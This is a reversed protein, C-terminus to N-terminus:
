RGSAKRADPDAKANEQVVTPATATGEFMPSSVPTRERLKKLYAAVQDSFREQFLREAIQKQIEVFPAAGGKRRSTVRVLHVGRPGEIPASVQGPALAALAANVGPVPYGDPATEWAGGKAATAGASEAKAIKAFDEGALLRARVSEAKKRAAPLEAPTKAPILIEHWTVKPDRQFEPDNKHKAYFADLDPKGPREVRERVRIMVVERAMNEELFAAKLDDLSEGREELKRALAFEDEVKEVRLMSPIERDGWPKLAFETLMEWQKPKKGFERKAEQLILANDILRDLTDKAMQNLEKPPIQELDHPKCKLARCLATKLERFTIVTGGVIAATRAAPKGPELGPSTRLPIADASASVPASSPAPGGGPPPTPGARPPLARPPAPPPEPPPDDAPPEQSEATYSARVTSLDAPIKGQNISTRIPEEPKMEVPGLDPQRSADPPLTARARACGSAAMAIVVVM